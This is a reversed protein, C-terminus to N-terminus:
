EEGWIEALKQNAEVLKRETELDAMLERQRNSSKQNM